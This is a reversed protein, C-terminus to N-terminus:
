GLRRCDHYKRHAKLINIELSQFYVAFVNQFRERHEAFQLPRFYVHHADVIVVEDGAIKLLVYAAIIHIEVRPPVIGADVVTHRGHVAGHAANEAKYMDEDYMPSKKEEWHRMDVQFLTILQINDSYLIISINDNIPVPAEQVEIGIDKMDYWCQRFEMYLKKIEDSSNLIYDLEIYFTASRKSMIEDVSITFKVEADELALLSRYFESFRTIPHRDSSLLSSADENFKQVLAFNNTIEEAFNYPYRAKWRIYDNKKDAITSNSDNIDPQLEDRKKVWASLGEIIWNASSYEGKSFALQYNDGVKEFHLGYIDELEFLVHMVSTPDDFDPEALTSPNVDLADAIEFLKGDKPKRVDNEYQRIRDGTLKIMSGLQAQTLGKLTRYKRIKDGLTM